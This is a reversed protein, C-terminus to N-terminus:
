QGFQSYFFILLPLRAQEQPIIWERSRHVNKLAM